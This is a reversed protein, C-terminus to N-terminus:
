DVILYAAYYLLACLAIAGGFILTAPGFGVLVGCTVYLGGFVFGIISYGFLKRKTLKMAVGDLLLTNAM